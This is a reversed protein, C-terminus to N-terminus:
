FTRLRLRFICDLRSYFGEGQYNTLVSVSPKSKFKCYQELGKVVLEQGAWLWGAIMGTIHAERAGIGTEWDFKRVEIKKIFPMIRKWDVVELSDFKSSDPTDNLNLRPLNITRRWIRVNMFSLFLDLKHVATLEFRYCFEINVKAYPILLIILSFLIALLSLLIIWLM